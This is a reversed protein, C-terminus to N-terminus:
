KGTERLAAITTRFERVLAPLEEDPREVFILLAGGEIPREIRRAGLPEGNVVLVLRRGQNVATLRYLDRGGEPTLQFLLCRGLEVEALEVSALDFETIVPKPQIAISVESRPLTAQAGDGRAAELFFRAVATAAPRAPETACGAVCLMAVIAGFVRM